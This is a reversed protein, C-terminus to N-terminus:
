DRALWRAGPLTLPDELGVRVFVDGREVDIRQDSAGANITGSWESKSLKVNGVKARGGDFQVLGRQTTANLNGASGRGMLLHVSGREARLLIPDTLPEMTEIDIARGDNAGLGTHVEIAGAVNRLTVPGGDNRVRVGGCEPVTITINVPADPAGTEEPSSLVRLVPRGNDEQLAAATWRITADVPGSVHPLASVSPGPAAPDVIITVSGRHNQVDIAPPLGQAATEVGEIPVVGVTPVADRLQDQCGTLLAAAAVLLLATRM